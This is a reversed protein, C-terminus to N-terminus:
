EGELVSILNRLSIFIDECLIEKSEEIIRKEDVDRQRIKIEIEEKAGNKKNVFVLTGTDKRFYSIFQEEDKVFEFIGEQLIFKPNLMNVCKKNFLPFIMVKEQSSAIGAYAYLIKTSGEDKDLEIVDKHGTLPNWRVINGDRRPSLWFDKGDFCIGSFGIKENEIRYIKHELTECDLEMVADANCFPILLKGERLVVQRRVYADDNFKISAVEEAWGTIYDLEQNETNLRIIVKSYVPVFFMYKGYMKSGGFIPQKSKCNVKKADLPISSFKKEEIDFVAISKAYFPAFYIKGDCVQMTEYLRKSAYSENAFEGVFEIDGTEVDESALGNFDNIIFWLKNKYVIADNISVPTLYNCEKSIM